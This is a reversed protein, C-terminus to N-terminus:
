KLFANTPKKNEERKDKETGAGGTRFIGMRGKATENVKRKRAM